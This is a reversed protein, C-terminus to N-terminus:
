LGQAVFRNFEHRDVRGDRNVDANDFAADVADGYVGGGYVGGGIVGGYM